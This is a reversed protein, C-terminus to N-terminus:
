TYALEYADVMRKIVDQYQEGMKGHRRLRNYLEIDLRVFKYENNIPIKPVGDNSISEFHRHCPRCLQVVNDKSDDGGLKRPLKHHNDVYLKTKDHKRGCFYCSRNESKMM